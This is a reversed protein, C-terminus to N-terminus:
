KIERILMGPYIDDGSVKEFVTFGLNAGEAEEEIAMCRNDWIKDKVARIVGKRKYSIRGEEDEVRELVEYRSSPSVGEKMGIHVCLVDNDVKFVPATVKFVDHQKQLQVINEDLARTLVKMFVDDDNKLGKLVTKSSTAEYKGIYELEFQKGAMNYARKKTPDPNNSDYYYQTYFTNAIEDNWVLRYLYSEIKVTFGAVLSSISNGLSGTNKVLKAVDGGRSGPIVGAILSIGEFFAGFIDARAQKNVYSIDNVIIFTNGILQEGADELMAKGRTTRLAMAVDEVSANYNGREKILDMDFSGDAKNRDFWKSVLRQAVKNTELFKTIQQQVEEDKAKGYSNIVRLSLTNDNYRDPPTMRIMTKFINQYMSTGEHLMSLVYLSSRNYDYDTATDDNGFSALPVFSILLLFLISKKM